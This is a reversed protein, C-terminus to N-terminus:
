SCDYNAKDLSKEQVQKVQKVACMRYICWNTDAEQWVLVCNQIDALTRGEVCVCVGGKEGEM